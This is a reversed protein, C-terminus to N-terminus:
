NHPPLNQIRNLALNYRYFFFSFCIKPKMTFVFIHSNKKPEIISPEVSGEINATPTISRSLVLSLVLSGGKYGVYPKCQYLFHGSLTTTAQEWKGATVVPDAPPGPNLEQHPCKERVALRQSNKGDHRRINEYQARGGGGISNFMATNHPSSSTISPKAIPMWMVASDPYWVVKKLVEAEPGV